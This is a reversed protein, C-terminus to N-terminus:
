ALQVMGIQQRLKNVDLVEDKNAVSMGTSDGLIEVVLIKQPNELDVPGKAIPDTLLKVLEDSHKALHRRHLHLMWREDSGIGESLEKAAEVMSGETSPVWREIPVWHYTYSFMGPSESFSRRLTAVLRKPDGRVRIGMVGQVTTKDMEELQFGAEEVNRRVEREALGQQYPHYTVLLNISEM